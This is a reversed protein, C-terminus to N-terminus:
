SWVVRGHRYYAGCACAQVFMQEGKIVGERKPIWHHEHPAKCPTKDCTAASGRHWAGSPAVHGAASIGPQVDFGRTM